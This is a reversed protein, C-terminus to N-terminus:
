GQQQNTSKVLKRCFVEPRTKNQLWNKGVKLINKAGNIDRDIFIRSVTEGTPNTNKILKTLVKHCEKLEGNVLYKHKEIEEETKSCICSTKFEDVLVINFKTSLLTRLWKNPTPFLFKMQTDRSWDGYALTITKREEQKVGKKKQRKTVKKIPNFTNQINNLLNAETQKERCYVRFNINRFLPKNYFDFVKNNIENKKHIFDLFNNSNMSKSNYDKLENEIKDIDNKKREKEKIKHAFKHYTEHRYQVANYQLVTGKDDIMTLLSRKGPDLGVVIHNDNIEKIQKNTLNELEQFGEDDKPKKFLEKQTPKNDKKKNNNKKKDDKKEDKKKDEKKDKKAYKDVRHNVFDLIVSVGDTKFQFNYTFGKQKFVKHKMNFLTEFVKNQFEKPHLMIYSKTKESKLLKVIKDGLMDVVGAHDLMIHKYVSDNRQPFIQYNKCELEELKKNIYIAYKLISLTNKKIHYNINDKEFVPVLKNRNEELWKKHKGDYKVLISNTFLDCKLNKIDTTLERLKEKKMESDNKYKELIEKKEKYLFLVNIYKNLYDRFHNMLNNEFCTAMEISTYQLIFSINKSEVKDFKLKDYKENYYKFICAYKDTNEYEIKNSECVSKLINYFFQRDIINVDIDNHKDLMLMRFFQYGYRVIKNISSVYKDIITNFEDKNKLISSLKIKVSKHKQKGLKDPPDKSETIEM